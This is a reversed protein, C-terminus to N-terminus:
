RRAGLPGLRIQRRATYGLAADASNLVEFSAAQGSSVQELTAYLETVRDHFALPIDGDRVGARAFAGNPTVAVVGWMLERAKGPEQWGVLGTRFGFETEFKKIGFDQLYRRYASPYVALGAATLVLALGAVMVVFQWTGLRVFQSGSEARRVHLHHARAM